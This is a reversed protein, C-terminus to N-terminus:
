LVKQLGSGTRIKAKGGLWGLTFALLWTALPLAISSASSDVLRAAVAWLQIGYIHMHLARGRDGRGGHGAATSGRAIIAATAPPDKKKGKSVYGKAKNVAPARAREQGASVTSTSGSESAADDSM